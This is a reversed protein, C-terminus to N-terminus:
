CTFICVTDEVEERCMPCHKLGAACMACACLHGCPLFAIRLNQQLCIHCKSPSAPDDVPLDRLVHGDMLKARANFAQRIWKKSKNGLLYPCHPFWYAHEIWPHDCKEWEKVAMGCYFCQAVDGEGTYFFGAEAIIPLLNKLDDPAEKFSEVRYHLRAYAPAFPDHLSLYKTMIAVLLDKNHL